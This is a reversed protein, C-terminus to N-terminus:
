VFCRFRSARPGVARAKQLTAAAQLGGCGQFALARRCWPPPEDQGVVPDDDARLLVHAYGLGATEVASEILIYARTAM